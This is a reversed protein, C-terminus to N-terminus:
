ASGRPLLERERLPKKKRNIGEQTPFSRGADNHSALEQAHHEELWKSLPVYRTASDRM